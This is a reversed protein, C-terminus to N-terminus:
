TKVCTLSVTVRTVTSASDVNFRLTNGATISTTWGTLTTDESKTASSLTPKASATITDAVTPPYNAYTDKWIDVVISGSQDAFLRAATITCAFPIEVDGKVGTTIASGGGDIIFEIATTLTNTTAVPTAWTGDGRLFTSSSASTGSNFRNVSVTGTLNGADTGSYFPGPSVNNLKTCAINPQSLTCDGGMTFGGFAGANNYQLQGSSGGPTAAANGWSAASGNTTLFKGSNGGQSPLINNIATSASNVDSLNLQRQLPGTLSQANAVGIAVLAVAGLAIWKRM